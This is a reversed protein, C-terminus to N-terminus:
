SETLLACTAETVVTSFGSAWVPLLSWSLLTGPEWSVERRCLAKGDALFCFSLVQVGPEQVETCHWQM